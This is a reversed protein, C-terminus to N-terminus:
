LNQKHERLLFKRGQLLVKEHDEFRSLHKTLKLRLRSKKLQNQQLAAKQADEEEQSVIADINCYMGDFAYHFGAPDSGYTM